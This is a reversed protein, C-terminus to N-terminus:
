STKCSIKLLDHHTSSLVHFPAVPCGPATLHSLTFVWYLASPWADHVMHAPFMEPSCFAICLINCQWIDHKYSIFMVNYSLTIYMWMDTQLCTMYPPLFGPPIGSTPLFAAHPGWNQVVEHRHSAICHWPQWVEMHSSRVWCQANSHQSCPSKSFFWVKLSRFVHKASQHMFDINKKTSKMARNQKWASSVPSLTDVRLVDLDLGGLICLVRLIYCIQVQLGPTMVVGLFLLHVIYVRNNVIRKRSGRAITYIRTNTQEQWHSSNCIDQPPVHRPLRVQNSEWRRFALGPLECRALIWVESELNLNNQLLQDNTMSAPWTPLENTKLSMKTSKMIKSIRLVPGVSPSCATSPMSTQLRPLTPLSLPVNRNGFKCVCRNGDCTQYFGRATELPKIIGNQVHSVVSPNCGTTKWPFDRWSEKSQFTWCFPSHLRCATTSKWPFNSQKEPCFVCASLHMELSGFVGLVGFIGCTSWFLRWGIVRLLKDCAKSRGVASCLLRRKAEVQTDQKLGVSKKDVRSSSSPGIRHMVPLAAPTSFIISQPSM